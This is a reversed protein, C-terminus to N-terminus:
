YCGLKLFYGESVRYTDEPFEKESLLVLQDQSQTSLIYHRAIGDKIKISWRNNEQIKWYEALRGYGVVLPLTPNQLTMFEGPVNMRKLPIRDRAMNPTDIIVLFSQNHTLYKKICFDSMLEEALVANATDPGITLGFSSFDLVNRSEVFREFYNIQNIDLAFSFDGNRWFVNEKPSILYGGLVLLYSKNELNVNPLNLYIRDRLPVGPGTSAIMDETIRIKNLPSIGVFSVFGFHRDGSRRLTKAGDQVYTTDAGAETWHVYGDVTTLCHSHLLTLDTQIGTTDIRTIQLDHMHAYPFNLPLDEGIVCPNADYGHQAALAYKVYKVTTSPLVSVSTLAADGWATLLATITGEYGSYTARFIDMDVYVPGEAQPHSLTLYVKSFLNFVDKVLLASLDTEKWQAEIGKALTTANVLSYM